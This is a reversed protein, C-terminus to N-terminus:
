WVLWVHEENGPVIEARHCFLVYLTGFIFEKGTHIDAEFGCGNAMRVSGFDRTDAEVRSFSVVFMLPIVYFGM